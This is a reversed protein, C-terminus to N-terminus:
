LGRGGVLRSRQVEFGASRVMAELGALNPGWWNAVSGGLQDGPYFQAMPVGALNPAVESLDRVEKTEPDVFGRDITHSEVWITAGPKAVSWLRDLALMPDRLHYLVGLFFVADFRGVEEPSVDYVNMTRYEVSSGLLGAATDFGTLNPAVADIALVEAGRAEAVFSFYGDRAGVDLVRMGSLDAPVEMAALQNASPNVGPTTIGPSVEIQHYWHEVKSIEVRVDESSLQTNPTPMPGTPRPEAGRRATGSAPAPKGGKLRNAVNRLDPLEGEVDLSLRLNRRLKLSLRRKFAPM